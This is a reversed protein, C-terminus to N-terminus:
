AAVRRSWIRLPKQYQPPSKPLGLAIIGTATAATTNADTGSGTYTGSTPNVDLYAGAVNMTTSGQAFDVFETASVGGITEASMKNLGAGRTSWAGIFFREVGSAPSITPLNQTAGSATTQAACVDIPLTPDLGSLEAIWLGYTSSGTVPTQTTSEGAAAWKYVWAVSRGTGGTGGFATGGTPITWGTNAVLQTTLATAVWALLLNGQVPAPSMTGSVAVSSGSGGTGTQVLSVAM